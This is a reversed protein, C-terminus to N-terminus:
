DPKNARFHLCSLNDDYLEHQDSVSSQQYNAPNKDLHEDYPNPPM